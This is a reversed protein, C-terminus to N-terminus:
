EKGIAPTSNCNIIGYSGSACTDEGKNKGGKVSMLEEIGVTEPMEFFVKQLAEEKNMNKM